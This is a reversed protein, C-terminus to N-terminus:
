PQPIDKSTAPALARTTLKPNVIQDKISWLIALVEGREAAGVNNMDLAKLVDDVVANFEMDSINMSAHTTLMDKGTYEVPGGTAAAFIEFVMQKVYVPDSNSFRNNVIPNVTHNTWIDECIARAAPEGGIRDYLTPSESAAQAASIGTIAFLGMSFVITKIWGSKKKM